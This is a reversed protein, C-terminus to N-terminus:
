KDTLNFVVPQNVGPQVDVTLGSPDCSFYKEPVLSRGTPLADRLSEKSANEGGRSIIYVLNKGVAAGDGEGPTTMRFTGDPQIDGMAPQGREPQFFVTGLPVPKGRYTVKGTVPTLTHISKNCGPATTTIVALAFLLILSQRIHNPM